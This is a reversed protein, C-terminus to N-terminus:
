DEYVKFPGKYRIGAGNLQLKTNAVTANDEVKVGAIDITAALSSAGALVALIGILLPKRFTM